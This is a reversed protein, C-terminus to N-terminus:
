GGSYDIVLAVRRNQWGSDGPGHSGAAILREQAEGYSVPRVQDAGLGAHNVLYDAVAEARLLGLRLNYVPDGAPDTFGEVTIRSAPYYRTVVEAFRDLVPFDQVRIESEDFGFYVPVDFHLASEMEQIRADFDAELAALAQVMGQVSESLDGEVTEIRGNLADATERDGQAMEERLQARVASLQDELEQKRVLSCGSLVLMVPLVAGVFLLPSKGKRGWM